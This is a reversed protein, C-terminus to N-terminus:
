LDCSIMGFASTQTTSSKTAASRNQPSFLTERPNRGVGLNATGDPESSYLTAWLMDLLQLHMCRQRTHAETRSISHSSDQIRYYFEHPVHPRGIVDSEFWLLVVDATHFKFM